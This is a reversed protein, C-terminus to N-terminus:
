EVAASLVLQFRRSRVQELFEASAKSFEEDFVGGFVSTEAYVRIPRRMRLIRGRSGAM